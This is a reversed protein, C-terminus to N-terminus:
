NLIETLIKDRLTRKSLNLPDLGKSIRDENIKSICKSSCAIVNEPYINCVYWNEHVHYSDGVKILESRKKCNDCQAVQILPM